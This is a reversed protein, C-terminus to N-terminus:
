ERFNFKLDESLHACPCGQWNLNDFQPHFIYPPGHRCCGLLCDMVDHFPQLNGPIRVVALTERCRKHFIGVEDVNNSPLQVPLSAYLHRVPVDEHRDVSAAMGIEPYPGDPKQAGIDRHYKGSRV